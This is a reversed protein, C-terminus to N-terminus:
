DLKRANSSRVILCAARTRAHLASSSPTTVGVGAAVPRVFAAHRLDVLCAVYAGVDSGGRADQTRTRRGGAEGFVRLKPTSNHVRSMM